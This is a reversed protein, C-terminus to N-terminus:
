CIALSKREWECKVKCWGLVKLMGEVNSRKGGGEIFRAMKAQEKEMIGLHKETLTAVELGYLLRPTVIKEWGQKACM